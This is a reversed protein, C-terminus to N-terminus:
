CENKVEFLYNEAFDVVFVMTKALFQMNQFTQRGVESCLQTECFTAVEAEYLWHVWKNVNNQLSIDVKEIGQWGKVHNNTSCFMEVIDSYLWIWYRQKSMITFGWIKLLEWVFMYTQAMWWVWKKTLSYGGMELNHGQISQKFSPMSPWSFWLCWWLCLWLGLKWPCCKM